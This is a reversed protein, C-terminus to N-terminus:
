DDGWGYGWGNARYVDHVREPQGADREPAYDLIRQKMREKRSDLIGIMDVDEDKICCKIAADLVAYEEWGNIGDFTDSPASLKPPTPCYNLTVSYAGNPTPIFKINAAYLRYWIPQGYLWGTPFAKFANRENEMYPRATLSISNSLAVDVSLLSLFDAPLAYTDAGNTTAFTSAARFYDQGFAGRVVDYLEAIGENIHDTIEADTTRRTQSELDARQRVRTLLTTLTVTRAM